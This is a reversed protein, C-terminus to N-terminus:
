LGFIVTALVSLSLVLVMFMFELLFNVLQNLM